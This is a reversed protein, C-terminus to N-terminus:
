QYTNFLYTAAGVGALIPLATMSISSFAAAKILGTIGTKWLGAKIAVKTAFVVGYTAVGVGGKGVSDM